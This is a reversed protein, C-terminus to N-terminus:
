DRWAAEHRERLAEAGLSRANELDLDAEEAAKEGRAVPVLEAIRELEGDKETTSIAFRIAGGDHGQIMGAASDGDQSTEATEVPGGPQPVTIAGALSVPRGGLRAAAQMLVFARDALSAFRASSFILEESGIRQRWTRFLIGRQMDLIRRGEVIEGGALDLTEGDISFVLRTVEPGPLPELTWLEAGARGFIGAVFLGPSSEPKDEELSGRLGVRGNGVTFWSEIDGERAADFGEVEICWSPDVVPQLLGPM